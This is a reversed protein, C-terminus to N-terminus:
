KWTLVASLIIFAMAHTVFPDQRHDDILVGEAEAVGLTKECIPTFEPFKTKRM